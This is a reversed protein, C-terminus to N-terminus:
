INNNQKKLDSITRIHWCDRSTVTLNIVVCVGLTVIYDAENETSRLITDAKDPENETTELTLTLTGVMQKCHTVRLLLLKLPM